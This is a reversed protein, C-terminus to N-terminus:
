GNTLGVLVAARRRKMQPVARLRDRRGWWDGRVSLVYPIHPESVHSGPMMVTHPVCTNGGMGVAYLLLHLVRHSKHEERWWALEQPREEQPGKAEALRECARTHLRQSCAGSYSNGRVRCPVWSAAAARPAAVAAVPRLALSQALSAAHQVGIFSSELCVQLHVKNTQVMTQEFHSDCM